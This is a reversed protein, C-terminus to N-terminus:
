SGFDDFFISDREVGLDELMQVVAASMVPPGCLYYEAEEPAPHRELYHELVVAHIFGTYGDWPEGKRPQSLAVHYDFNEHAQAAAEFEERYCIDDSDRCGYWFSMKRGTGRDLQDLIMSRIPAIGAGGAIFVM